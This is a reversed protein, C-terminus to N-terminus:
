SLYPLSATPVGQEDVDSLAFRRVLFVAIAAGAFIGVWFIALRSGNWAVRPWDVGCSAGDCEWWLKQVVGVWLVRLTNSAPIVALWRWVHRTQLMIGGSAGVVVLGVIWHLQDSCSSVDTVRGCALRVIGFPLEIMGAGFAMVYSVLLLALCVVTLGNRLARRLPARNPGDTNVLPSASVRDNSVTSQIHVSGADHLLQTRM